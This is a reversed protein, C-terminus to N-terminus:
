AGHEKRLREVFAEKTQADIGAIDSFVELAFRLRERDDITADEVHSYLGLNALRSGAGTLTDVPNLAGVALDFVEGDGCDITARSTVPSVVFQVAGQGDSTVEQPDGDATVVCAQGARPKGLWDVLRVRVTLKTRNVTIVHERGTAFSFQPPLRAPVHITDVPHLVQPDKRRKGLDANEPASWVTEFKMFGASWAVSAATQGPGVARNEAPVADESAPKGRPSTVDRHDIDALLVRCNGPAIDAAKATGNKNTTLRREGGDSAVIRVARRPLADGDQDIVTIAIWATEDAVPSQPPLSPQEGDEELFPWPAAPERELTLTGDALAHEMADRVETETPLTRPTGDWMDFGRDGRLWEYISLIARTGPDHELRGRDYTSSVLIWVPDSTDDAVSRADIAPSVVRAHWVDGFVDRIVWERLVSYIL